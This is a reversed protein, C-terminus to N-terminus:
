TTMFGTSPVGSISAHEVRTATATLWEGTFEGSLSVTFEFRFLGPFSDAAIEGPVRHGGIYRQAEGMGQFGGTDSAFFELYPSEAAGPGGSPPIWVFGSVITQASASDYRASTIFPSPMRGGYPGTNVPTSDNDLGYDIAVNSNGWIRNASFSSVATPNIAIGFQRNYAIVNSTISATESLLVSSAGLYIGSGGNPLPEDSHAKLGIRNESISVFGDLVFIGSRTNGSLVCHDILAAPAPFFPVGVGFTTGIGRLANPKAASGTPDTGIFLDHLETDFAARASRICPFRTGIVSVGNGRFGNIALHSVEGRCGAGVTLGDGPTTGGGSIEIEPGDANTDGVTETQWSGDVVYNGATVTPLTSTIRITKWTTPSPEEIRFGILCPDTTCAANPDPIAPRLSGAGDNATSTVLFTRYAPATISTQVMTAGSSVWAHFTVNSGDFHPPAVLQMTLKNSGGAAVNEVRCRVSGAATPTCQPPLSSIGADAPGDIGVAMDRATAAGNSLTVELPFAHSPKLPQNGAPISLLVATSPAACIPLVLILLFASGVVIRV